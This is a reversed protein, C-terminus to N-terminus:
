PEIAVRQVSTMPRKVLRGDKTLLTLQGDEVAFRRVNRMYLEMKAGDKMEVVLRTTDEPESPQAREAPAPEPRPSTKPKTRSATRSAPKPSATTTARASEVSAEGTAPANPAPQRRARASRQRRPPAETKSPKASATATESSDKPASETPTAPAPEPAAEAIKTEPTDVRAGTATAPRAGKSAGEPPRELRALEAPPDPATSAVFPGEFQIRYSGEQDGATRAEVRLILTEQRKLYISKSVVAPSSGAYITLKGLPRLSGATFLDVDGDLNASEVKIILDGPGGAFTYFHKTLRADGVDRPAIRGSIEAARAPTPYELVTSQARADITRSVFVLMAAILCAVLGIM